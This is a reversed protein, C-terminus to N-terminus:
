EKGRDETNVHTHVHRDQEEQTQRDKGTKGWHTKMNKDKVIVQDAEDCRIGKNEPYKHTSCIQRRWAHQSWMRSGM